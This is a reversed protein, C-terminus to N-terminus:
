QLGGEAKYHGRASVFVDAVSLGKKDLLHMLYTIVDVVSSQLDHKDYMPYRKVAQLASVTRLRMMKSEKAM